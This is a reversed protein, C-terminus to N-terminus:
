KRAAELGKVPDPFTVSDESVEKDEGQEEQPRGLHKELLQDVTQAGCVILAIDHM